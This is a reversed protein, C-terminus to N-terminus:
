IGLDGHPDVRAVVSVTQPFSRLSPFTPFSGAGALADVFAFEGLVVGACLGQHGYCFCGLTLRSLSNIDGVM